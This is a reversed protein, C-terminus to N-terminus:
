MQKRLLTSLEFPNDFYFGIYRVNKSSGFMGKINRINCLEIIINSTSLLVIDFSNERSRELPWTHHVGCIEKIPVYDQQM